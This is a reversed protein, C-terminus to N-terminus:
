DRAANRPRRLMPLMRPAKGVQIEGIVEFGFRQYLPVNRPNATELYALAGQSDCRALATRMLQSGIGTGQVKPDAGIMALYWHPEQPHWQGMKEFTSLLDSLHEPKATERFLKDVADGGASVGPPLWLAAGSFDAALYATGCALSTGAFERVATPMTQLYDRLAPWAFRAAPDVAFAAVIVAVAHPMEEAAATRIATSPHNM